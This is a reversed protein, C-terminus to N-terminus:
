GSISKQILVGASVLRGMTIPLRCPTLVCEHHYFKDAGHWLLHGDHDEIRFQCDKFQELLRQIQFKKLIDVVNQREVFQVVRLSPASRRFSDLVAFIHAYISMSAQYRDCRLGLYSVPPLVLNLPLSVWEDVSIILSHLRPCHESYIRLDFNSPFLHLSTINAGYIKLFDNKRWLNDDGVFLVEHVSPLHIQYDGDDIFLDPLSLTQLSPNFAHCNDSESSSALFCNLIRLNTASRLLELYSSENPVLRDTSWDVVRLSLAHSMLADMVSSPMEKHGYQPYRAAFSVIALNPMCRIIEALFELEADGHASDQDRMAVDLRETYWGLPNSGSIIAKGQASTMVTSCISSLCRGRGLYVSKYLYPSALIYWTKCVRVLHRKTVLSNRIAPHHRRNFIYGIFASHHYIEPTLIDPVHTAFHFIQQWIEPPFNPHIAKCKPIFGPM